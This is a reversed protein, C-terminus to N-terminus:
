AKISDVGSLCGLYLQWWFEVSSNSLTQVSNDLASIVQYLINLLHSRLNTACRAEKQTENPFYFSVTKLLILM